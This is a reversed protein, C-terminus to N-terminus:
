WDTYFDLLVPVGRAAAEKQADAISVVSEGEPVGCGAAVLLGALLLTSCVATKRVTFGGFLVECSPFM